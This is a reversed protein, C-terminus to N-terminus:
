KGRIRLVAPAILRIGLTQVVCLVVCQPIRTLLLPLYETGYLMSIWFSNLWLGLILQNILVSTLVRELKQSKHLFAGFVLGTLFATFTFGPFYAGIPFLIAGIFDGMAAVIGAPLAGYLVAAVVVPIFNFGIKMNWANVSLFRSLIVEIAVLLGMVILDRLKNKKM